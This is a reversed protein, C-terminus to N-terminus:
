LDPFSTQLMLNSTQLM